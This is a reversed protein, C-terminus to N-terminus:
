KYVDGRYDIKSIIVTDNEIVYIVRIRGVRLRYADIKMGKLKKINGSPIKEIAEVIKKGIAFDCTDLFKAPQKLYVRTM